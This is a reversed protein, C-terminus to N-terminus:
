LVIKILLFLTYEPCLFTAHSRLCARSELRPDTHGSAEDTRISPCFRYGRRKRDESSFTKTAKGVEMGVRAGDLVLIGRRERGVAYDTALTAARASPLRQGVGLGFRPNVGCVRIRKVVIGGARNAGVSARSSGAMIPPIILLVM